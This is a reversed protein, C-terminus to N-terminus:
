VVTNTSRNGETSLSIAINTSRNGETSLSIAIDELWCSEDVYSGGGAVCAVVTLRDCKKTGFPWGM